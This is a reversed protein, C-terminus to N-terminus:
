IATANGSSSKSRRRREQPRWVALMGLLAFYWGCVGLRAFPYDVMAHLCVAILGIGWATQVAPRISWVFVVLMILAFGIGGEAAWQLWDNHARNVVLGGDYLAFRPYVPVYSNLGWGALPRQAIMALSSENINRRVALQDRQHLKQMVESVGASYVFVSSLILTSIAAYLFTRNRNKLFFLLLTLVLEGVVLAAGARSGCAAVAGIQLAALLMYTLDPSRKSLGSWLTVPLLLEVFQAFNNWYAFSGYVAPYKSPLVWFYRNTKSAQELLELVCLATGFLVFIHRFLAARQQDKFLQCALFTIAAATLWFLVGSWAEYTAKQRLLITQVTGYVTLLGLCMVPLKIVLDAPPPLVLYVGLGLLLVASLIQSAAEGSDLTSLTLAMLLGALAFCAIRDREAIRISAPKAWVTDSLPSEM